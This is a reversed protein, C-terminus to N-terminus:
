EDVKVTIERREAFDIKGDHHFGCFAELTLTHTGAKDPRYFIDAGQRQFGGNTAKLRVMECMNLADLGFSIKLKLSRGAMAKVEDIALGSILSGDKGHLIKRAEPFPQDLFDKVAVVIGVPIPVKDPIQGPLKMDSVNPEANITLNQHLLTASRDGNIYVADLSPKDSQEPVLATSGLKIDWWDKGLDALRMGQGANRIRLCIRERDTIKTRAEIVGGFAMDNGLNHFVQIWKRTFSREFVSCYGNMSWPLTRDLLWPSDGEEKNGGFAVSLPGAAHIFFQPCWSRDEDGKKSTAEYASRLNMANLVHGNVIFTREPGTEGAQGNIPLLRFLICIWIALMKLM